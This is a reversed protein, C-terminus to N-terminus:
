QLPRECIKCRELTNGYKCYKCIIVNQVNKLMHIEEVEGKLRELEERAENRERYLGEYSSAIETLLSLAEAESLLTGTRLERVKELVKEHDAQPPTPTTMPNTM